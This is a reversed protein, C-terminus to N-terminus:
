EDVRKATFSRGGQMLTLSIIKDKDDREFSMTIPTGVLDFKDKATARLLTLPESKDTPQAMLRDEGDMSVTINFFQGNEPNYQGVYTKLDKNSIEHADSSTKGQAMVNTSFFTILALFLISRSLLTTNNM